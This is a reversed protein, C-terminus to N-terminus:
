KSNIRKAIASFCNYIGEHVTYDSDGGSREVEIRLCEKGTELDIVNFTCWVMVEGRYFTRIKRLYKHVVIVIKYKAQENTTIQLGNSTANFSKIFAAYSGDVREQYDTGCFHKYSEGEWMANGNDIELVAFVKEKLVEKNGDTVTIKGSGAM